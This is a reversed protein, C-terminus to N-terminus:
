HSQEHNELKDLLTQVALHGMEEQPSFDM